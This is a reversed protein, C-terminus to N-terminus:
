RTRRPRAAEGRGICGLQELQVSKERVDELIGVGVETSGGAEVVQLGEQGLLVHDRQDTDGTAGDDATQDPM